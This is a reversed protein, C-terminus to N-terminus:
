PGSTCGGLGGGPLMNSALEAVLMWPKIDSGDYDGRYKAAAPASLLLNVVVWGIFLQKWHRCEM